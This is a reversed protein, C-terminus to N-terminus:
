NPQTTFLGPKVAKLKRSLAPALREVYTVNLHHRDRYIPTDDVVVPCENETCLYETLDVEDILYDYDAAPSEFALSLERPQHCRALNHQQVGVCIPVDSSFYPNDRIGVLQIGAEVLRRWQQVYTDPVYEVNNEGIELGDARTSATIVVDPTLEFLRFIVRENWEHCSKNSNKKVGLPCATKTMSLLRWGQQEAIIELASFWQLSHSGGVLAITLSGDPDGYECVKVESGLRGQHCGDRYPKPQLKATALQFEDKLDYSTKNINLPLTIKPQAPESLLTQMAEDRENELNLWWSLNLAFILSFMLVASLHTFATRSFQITSMPKEILNQTLWALVLSISIVLLGQFFSLETTGFHHQAMVLIPWHWLYLTFSWGGFRSLWSKALWRSVGHYSGASQGAGALLLMSASIVPLLAVVGPFEAEAPLIVGTSLIGLLGLTALLMSSVPRWHLWPMLVAIGVGTLFQWYRAFLDFYAATPETSTRWVGYSFSLGWLTALVVLLLWRKKASLKIALLLCFPLLWYFQMQISLAWFQQVPSPPLERALYDTSNKILLVNELQLSAALVEKVLEMQLVAPMFVIALLLTTSLVVFASPLVRQCIRGWFKWLYLRQHNAYQKLLVNAMMYGSIVFFVDVGGSVKNFWIHYALILLASIARLGQLDDRFNSRQYASWFSM